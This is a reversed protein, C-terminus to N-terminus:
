RFLFRESANWLSTSHTEKREKESRDSYSEMLILDSEKVNEVSVGAFPNKWSVFATWAM